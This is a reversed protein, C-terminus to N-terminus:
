ITAFFLQFESIVNFQLNELSVDIAGWGCIKGVWRILSGLIRIVLVLSHGEELEFTRTSVSTEEAEEWHPCIWHGNTFIQRLL